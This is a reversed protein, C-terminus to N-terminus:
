KGRKLEAIAARKWQRVIDSQRRGHSTIVSMREHNGTFDRMLNLNTEFAQHERIEVGWKM